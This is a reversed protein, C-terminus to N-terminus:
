TRPEGPLLTLLRQRWSERSFRQKECTREFNVLFLGMGEGLKYPRMVETMKFSVLEGASNGDSRQRAARAQEM